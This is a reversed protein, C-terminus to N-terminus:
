PAVEVKVTVTEAMAKRITADIGALLKAEDFPEGSVVAALAGVLGKVTAQTAAHDTRDKEYTSVAWGRMDTGPRGPHQHAWQENTAWGDRAFLRRIAAETAAQVQKQTLMDETREPTPPPQTPGTGLTVGRAKLWPVPDVTVGAIWIELHLHAGDVDGTAGQDCIHQGATVRQGPKVRINVGHGTYSRISRGRADRGHDIIVGNGTLRTLLGRRRDGPHSDDRVAVVTGAAIAGIRRTGGRPRGGVDTGYHPVVRKLTPHIRTLSYGSTVVGALPNVYTM